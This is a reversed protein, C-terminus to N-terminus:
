SGHSGETREDGALGRLLTDVVEEVYSATGMGLVYGAIFSGVLMRASVDPNHPRLEGAAIRKELYGTFLGLALAQVVKFGQQMEPRTTVERAVIRFTETRETALAYMRTAAEVLVERTPRDGAHTFLDSMMSFPNDRAIIAWFLEDKGRFYHYLLGQAVGAEDAIDKITTNEVGKEAFLRRATEILQGRREQAQLERRNPTTM